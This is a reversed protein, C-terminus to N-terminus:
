MRYNSADRELLEEVLERVKKKLSPTIEHSYNRSPLVNDEKRRRPVNQYSLQATIPAAALVAM